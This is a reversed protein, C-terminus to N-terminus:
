VNSPCIFIASTLLSTMSDEVCVTEERRIVIVFKIASFLIQGLETLQKICM